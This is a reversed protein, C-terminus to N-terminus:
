ASGPVRLQSIVQRVGEIQRVASVARAVQNWSALEGELTVVGDTVDVNITAVSGAGLVGALTTKVRAQLGRDAMWSGSEQGWEDLKEGVYEGQKEMSKQIERGFDKLEKSIGNGGKGGEAGEEQAVVPSTVLLGAILLMGVRKMRDMM